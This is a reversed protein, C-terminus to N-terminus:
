GTCKFLFKVWFLKISEGDVERSNLAGACIVLPVEVAAAILSISFVEDKLSYGCEIVYNGRLKKGRSCGHHFFENVNKIPSRMNIVFKVGVTSWDHPIQPLIRLGKVSHCIVCFIDYM